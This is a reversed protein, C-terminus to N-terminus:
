KAFVSPSRKEIEECTMYMKLEDISTTVDVQHVSGDTCVVLLGRGDMGTMLSDSLRGLRLDGPEMWHRDFDAIEL